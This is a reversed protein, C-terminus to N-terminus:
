YVAGTLVNRQSSVVDVPPSSAIPPDDWYVHRLPLAGPVAGIASSDSLLIKVVGRMLWPAFLQVFIPRIAESFRHGMELFRYSISVSQRGLRAFADRELCAHFAVLADESLDGLSLGDLNRPGLPADPDHPPDLEVFIQQLCPSTLDSLLSLLLHHLWPVVRTPPLVFRAYVRQLAVNHVLSPVPSSTYQSEDHAPDCVPPSRSRTGRGICLSRVGWAAM